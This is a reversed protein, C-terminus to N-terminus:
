VVFNSNLRKSVPVSKLTVYNPLGSIYPPYDEGRILPELYRRGAATISFGDKSIYRRPLMKEKNAVRSLPAKEIKWRYPKDSVRKIV